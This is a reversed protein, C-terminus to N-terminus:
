APLGTDVVFAIEVVQGPFTLEAIGVVTSVPRHAGFYALNGEAVAAAHRQLGVVYVTQSVVQDRTVGYHALVRDANRYTRELQAGFDDAHVFEGTEDLSLQGSVHILEGSRIAQSYGFAGEAPVDHDYVDIAM